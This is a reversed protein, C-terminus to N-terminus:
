TSPSTPVYLLLAVTVARREGGLPGVTVCVDFM